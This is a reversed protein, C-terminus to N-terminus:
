ILDTLTQRGQQSGLECAVSRKNANLLIFEYSDVGSKESTGFRISEAARSEIKVVDAGFWALAQSCCMGAQFDSLEVVRVGALAPNTKSDESSPDMHKGAQM